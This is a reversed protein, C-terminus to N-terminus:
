DCNTPLIIIPSSLASANEIKFDKNISEGFERIGKSTKVDVADGNMFPLGGGEDSGEM